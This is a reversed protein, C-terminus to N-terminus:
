DAQETVDPIISINRQLRGSAKTDELSRRVFHHEEEV